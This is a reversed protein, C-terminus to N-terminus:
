EQDDKEAYRHSNHGMGEKRFIGKGPLAIPTFNFHHLCHTLLPQDRWSDLEMSYRKWFCETILKRWNASDPAYMFYTNQYVPITADYDDQERLWAMSAEINKKIDKKYWKIARFETPINSGLRFGLGHGRRLPIAFGVESSLVKAKLDHLLEVFDSKDKPRSSADLYFVTKCNNAITPHQWAMFKPWRSKTIM